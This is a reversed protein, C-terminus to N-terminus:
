KKKSRKKKAAKGASKKRSKRGGGGPDDMIVDPDVVVIGGTSPDLLSVGYKFTASELSGGLRQRRRVKFEKSTVGQPVAIVQDNTKFPSRNGTFFICANGDPSDWTVEDMRAPRGDIKKDWSSVNINDVRLSTGGGSTVKVIRLEHLM